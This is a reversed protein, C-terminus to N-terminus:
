QGQPRRLVIAEEPVFVGKILVDHSGTGRMGLTHWTALITVAAAASPVPFHLVPPGNHPDDYVATTMLVDGRPGGRAFIQRATVRFGGDVKAATGSSALWDSGGSSILVLQEDVVRRLLPEVAQGQRWRWVTADVLHTHMSLALATAGCQHALPRVFAAFEPHSAGGGSLEQLVGAAFISHQKLIDFNEAVLSDDADHAAARPALETGLQHALAVRDTRTEIATTMRQGKQLL